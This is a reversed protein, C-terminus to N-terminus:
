QGATAVEQVTVQIRIVEGLSPHSYKDVLWTITDVNPAKLATFADLTSQMTALLSNGVDDLGANYAYRAYVGYQVIAAIIAPRIFPAVVHSYAPFVEGNVTFEPPVYQAPVYSGTLMLAVWPAVGLPHNPPDGTFRVAIANEGFIDRAAAVRADFYGQQPDFAEGIRRGWKSAAGALKVQLKLAAIEAPSGSGPQVGFFRAWGKSAPTAIVNQFQQPDVNKLYNLADNVDTPTHGLAKALEIIIRDREATLSQSWRDRATESMSIPLEYGTLTYPM